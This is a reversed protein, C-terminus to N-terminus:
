PASTRAGTVYAIAARTATSVAGTRFATNPPLAAACCCRRANVELVQPEPLDHHEYAVSALVPGLELVEVAELYLDV